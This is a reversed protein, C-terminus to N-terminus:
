ILGCISCIHVLDAVLLYYGDSDTNAWSGTSTSPSWLDVGVNALATGNSMTVWGSLTVATSSATQLGAWSGSDGMRVELDLWGGTINMASPVEFTFSYSGAVGEAVTVNDSLDQHYQTSTPNEWWNSGPPEAGWNHLWVSFSSDSVGSLLPEM